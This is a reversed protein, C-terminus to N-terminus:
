PGGVCADVRTSHSAHSESADLSLCTTPEGLRSEASPHHGIPRWVVTFANWPVRNSSSSHYMGREICSSDDRSQRMGDRPCSRASGPQQGGKAERGSFGMGYQRLRDGWSKKCSDSRKWGLRRPAWGEKEQEKKGVRLYMTRTFQM